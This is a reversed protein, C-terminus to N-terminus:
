PVQKVSFPAWFSGSWPLHRVPGHGSVQLPGQVTFTARDGAGISDPAEVQIRTKMTANWRTTGGDADHRLLTLQYITQPGLTVLDVELTGSADDPVLKGKVQLARLGEQSTTSAMLSEAEFRYHVGGLVVVGGGSPAASQGLAPIAALALLPLASKLM